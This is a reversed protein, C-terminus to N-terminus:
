TPRNLSFNGTRKRSHLTQGKPWCRGEWLLLHLVLQQVSGERRDLAGVAFWWDPLACHQTTINSPLRFRAVSDYGVVFHSQFLSFWLRFWLGFHWHHSDSVRFWLWRAQPSLFSTFCCPYLSLSFFVFVHLSSFLRSSCLWRCALSSCLWRRAFAFWLVVASVLRLVFLLVTTFITAALSASTWCPCPSTIVLIGLTSKSSSIPSYLFIMWVAWFCPNLFDLLDHLCTLSRSCLSPNKWNKLLLDPFDAWCSCVAAVLLLDEGCCLLIEFLVGRVNRCRHLSLHKHNLLCRSRCIDWQKLVTVRGDIDCTRLVCLLCRLFLVLVAHRLVVFDLHVLLPTWCIEPGLVLLRIDEVTFTPAVQTGGHLLCRPSEFSTLLPVFILQVEWSFWDTKDSVCRSFSETFFWELNTVLRPAANYSKCCQCCWCLRNYASSAWALTFRRVSRRHAHVVTSKSLSRRLASTPVVHVRLFSASLLQHKGLRLEDVLNDAIAHRRLSLDWLGLPSSVFCDLPRLNSESGFHHVGTTWCLVSAASATGSRWTLAFDWDLSNRLDLNWLWLKCLVLHSGFCFCSAPFSTRLVLYEWDTTLVISSAALPWSPLPSAPLFRVGCFHLLGASCCRNSAVFLLLIAVTYFGMWWNLIGAFLSLWLLLACSILLCPESPM